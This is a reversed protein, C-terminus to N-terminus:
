LSICLSRSKGPRFVKRLDVCTLRVGFLFTERAFFTVEDNLHDANLVGWEPYLTMIVGELHVDHDADIGGEPHDRHDADMVVEQHDDMEKSMFSTKHKSGRFSIDGAETWADVAFWEYTYKSNVLPTREVILHVKYGEAVYPLVPHNSPLKEGYEAPSFFTNYVFVDYTKGGETVTAVFARPPQIKTVIGEYTRGTVLGEHLSPFALELTLSHTLKSNPPKRHTKSQSVRTVVIDFCGLLSDEGVVEGDFHVISDVRLHERMDTIENQGYFEVVSRDFVIDLVAGFISYELIGRMSSEYRKVRALQKKLKKGLGTHPASTVPLQMQRQKGTSLTVVANGVTEEQCSPKDTKIEGSVDTVKINRKDVSATVSGDGVTGEQCLLEDAKVDDSHYTVETGKQDLSASEYSDHTPKDFCLPKELKVQNPHDRVELTNDSATVNANGVTTGSCSHIDARAEEPHDTAETDKRGDGDRVSRQEWDYCLRSKYFMEREKVRFKISEFELDEVTPTVEEEENGHAAAVSYSLTAPEGKTDQYETDINVVYPIDERYCPKIASVTVLRGETINEKVYSDAVSVGKAFIHERFFVARAKKNELHFNVLGFGDDVTYREVTGVYKKDLSSKISRLAKLYKQKFEEVAADIKLQSSCSKDNLMPKERCTGTNETPYIIGDTKCHKSKQRGADSNVKSGCTSPDVDSDFTKKRCYVCTATGCPTINCPSGSRPRKGKWASSAVYVAGSPHDKLKSIDAFVQMGQVLQQWSTNTLTCRQRKIYLKKGHILVRLKAGRLKATMLVASSMWVDDIVGPVNTASQPLSDVPSAVNSTNTKSTFLEGPDNDSVTIKDTIQTSPQPLSDVSSAVDSTNTKSTLLEGADNDSVTMKDTIQTSPQPLSDVPSAVDSTNTKCTFLEGPDNDSVTMKDTIQTSPQPLSDVPSAVDSTNTKSTLLEGADNDSVTMQTSSQPLSDVSSAVDSTNTKSTFLEGTNCDSSTVECIIQSLKVIGPPKIETDFESEAVKEQDDKPVITNEESRLVGTSFVSYTEEALHEHVATEQRVTSFSQTIDTDNKPSTFTGATSDKCTEGDTVNPEYACPRSVSDKMHKRVGSNEACFNEWCKVAIYTEDNTVSQDTPVAANNQSSKHCLRASDSNVSVVDSADKQESAVDCVDLQEEVNPEVYVAVAKYTFSEGEYPRVDLTVPMGIYLVDCLKSRNCIRTGNVYVKKRYFSARVARGDVTFAITGHDYGFSHINGTYKGFHSSNSESTSLEENSTFSDESLQDTSQTHQKDSQASCLATSPVYMLCHKETALSGLILTWRTSPSVSMRESSSHSLPLFVPVFILPTDWVSKSSRRECTQMLVEKHGSLKSHLECSPDSAMEQSFTDPICSDLDHSQRDCVTETSDLAVISLNVPFKGQLTVAKYESTPNHAPMKYLCVPIQLYDNSPLTFDNCSMGTLYATMGAHSSPLTRPVAIHTPNLPDLPMELEIGLAALSNSMRRRKNSSEPLIRVGTNSSMDDAPSHSNRRKPLRSATHSFIVFGILAARFQFGREDPPKLLEYSFQPHVTKIACDNRIIGTGSLYLRDEDDSQVSQLVRYLPVEGYEGESIGHVSHTGDLQSIAASGCVGHEMAPLHRTEGQETIDPLDAVPEDHKTHSAEQMECHQSFSIAAAKRDNQQSKVSSLNTCGRERATYIGCEKLKMLSTDSASEAAVVTSVDKTEGVHHKDPPETRSTSGSTETCTGVDSIGVCTVDSNTGELTAVNSVADDGQSERRCRKAGNVGSDHETKQEDAHKRQEEDAYRRQEKLESKWATAPVHFKKHVSKREINEFVFEVKDGINLHDQIWEYNQLEELSSNRFLRNLFILVPFSVNNVVLIALAANPPSVQVVRDEYTRGPFLSVAASCSSIHRGFIKILPPKEYKWVCTAKYRINWKNNGPLFSADCQLKTKGATVYSSLPRSPDCREDTLYLEEIDFLIKEKSTDTTLVGLVDSLIDTVKAKTDSMHIPESKRPDSDMEMTIAESTYLM